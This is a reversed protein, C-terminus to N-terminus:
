CECLKKLSEAVCRVIPLVQKRSAKVNLQRFLQLGSIQHPPALQVAELQLAPDTSCKLWETVQFVVELTIFLNKHQGYV